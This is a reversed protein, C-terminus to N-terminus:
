SRSRKAVYVVDTGWRWLAPVRAALDDILRAVPRLWARRYAGAPCSPSRGRRRGTRVRAPRLLELVESRAVAGLVMARRRAPARGPAAALGPQRPEGRRAARRGRHAPMRRRVRDGPRAGRRPRQAAPPVDDGPGSRGDTAPEPM